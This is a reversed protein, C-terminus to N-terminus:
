SGNAADTRENTRIRFNNNEFADTLIHSLIDGIYNNFNVDCQLENKDFDCSDLIAYNFQLTAGDQDAHERLGIKGYAYQVGEWTGTKIHIAWNESMPNEMFTYDDSTIMKM